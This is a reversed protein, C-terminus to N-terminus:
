IHWEPSNEYEWNQMWSLRKETADVEVVKLDENILDDLERQVEEIKTELMKRDVTRNHQWRNFGVIAEKFTRYRSVCEGFEDQIEYLKLNVKM